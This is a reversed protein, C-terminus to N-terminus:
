LKHGKIHKCMIKDEKCLTFMYPFIHGETQRDTQKGAQRGAYKLETINFPNQNFKNNTSYEKSVKM